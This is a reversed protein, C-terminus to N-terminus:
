IKIRSCAKEPSIGQASHSELDWSALSCTPDHFVLTLDLIPTSAEDECAGFGEVDIPSHVTALFSGSATHGVRDELYM